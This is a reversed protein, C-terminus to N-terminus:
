SKIVYKVHEGLASSFFDEASTGEFAVISAKQGCEIKGLMNEAGLAHAANVTVAAYVEPLSFGCKSLALYCAFWISNAPSTQPNFNSAIVSRIGSSRLKKADLFPLDNFFSETPLTVCAVGLSALRVLDSETSYSCHEISLVRGKPRRSTETQEARRALECALEAGGSRSMKDAHIHVDLGYQMSSCLWKEAQEKSFHNRELFVDVALPLAKKKCSMEQSIAIVNPLDEILAQIYNDLGRYDPSQAHPGFYTPAILPLPRQTDEDSLALYVAELLRREEAPNLGYGTKAELLVIGKQLAHFAHNQFSRSLNQKSAARTEHVVSQIGGGLKEIDEATMGRSKMVLDNACSGAFIPHTHCDILGPMLVLNQADIVLLNVFDKYKSLINEGMELVVGDSIMVDYNKKISLGKKSMTDRTREEDWDQMTIVCPSNQFCIHRNESPCLIKATM